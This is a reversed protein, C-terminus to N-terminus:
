ECAVQEVYSLDADGDETPPTGVAIFVADSARVASPLDQTFSLRSGPHRTILEPLFEEHIPVRGHRLAAIKKEDSDVLIVRHGIEAFCAGAVLGVYGSGVIAINLSEKRSDSQNTHVEKDIRLYTANTASKASHRYASARWDNHRLNIACCFHCRSSLD